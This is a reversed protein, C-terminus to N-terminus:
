DLGAMKLLHQVGVVIEDIAQADDLHYKEHLDPLPDEETGLPVCTTCVPCLHFILLAVPETGDPGRNDLTISRWGVNAFADIVKQEEPGIKREPTEPTETV